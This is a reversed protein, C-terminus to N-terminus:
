GRADNTDLKPTSPNGPPFLAEVIEASLAITMRMMAVAHAVAATTM